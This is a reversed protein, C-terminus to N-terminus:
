ARFMTLHDAVWTSFTRAPHCTIREVELSVPPEVRVANKWSRLLVEALQPPMFREFRRRAEEEPETIVSLDKGLASGIIAVQQRFTLREPGTLVPASNDLQNTTLAIVAVDAIDKEHIPVQVADPYPLKVLGESKITYNWFSANEAFEGPRLLTYTFGAEKIAKEVILFRSGNFDKEAGEFTTASSSLLVIHQVGCQKFVQMQEVADGFDAYLFVREVGELAPLLSAPDALNAQFVEVEVPFSHKEPCRTTVRPRIGQLQLGSLVNRGVNGSAGIILISM